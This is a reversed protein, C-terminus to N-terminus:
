FDDDGAELFGEFSNSDEGSSKSYKESALRKWNSRDVRLLPERAMRLYLKRVPESVRSKLSLQKVQGYGTTKASHVSFLGKVTAAGENLIREAFINFFSNLVEEVIDRRINVDAAVEDIWKRRQGEYGPRNDAM